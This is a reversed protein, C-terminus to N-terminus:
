ILHAVLICELLIRVPRDYVTHRLRSGRPTEKWSPPTRRGAPPPEGDLPPTRWGAPPPPEGELHPPEGDLRPPPEGDLRPPPRRALGGGTSLIVSVQLFM